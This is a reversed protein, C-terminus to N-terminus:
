ISKELSAIIEKLEQIKEQIEKKNEKIFANKKYQKLTEICYDFGRLFTKQELEEKQPLEELVLVPEDEEENIVFTTIETREPKNMPFSDTPTKQEKEKKRITNTILQEIRVRTFVIENKDVDEIAINKEKSELKLIEEYLQEQEENTLNAAEQLASYQFGPTKCFEQLQPILKLISEYRHVMSETINFYNAVKERKNGKFKERKLIDRYFSIANAMELPSIKRNAINSSLLKKDILGKEESDSVICPIEKRKLYEMAAYRRHGSIIEYRGDPKQYVEIPTTFGEEKIISALHEINNVSFIKKNNPNSDIKNLAINQLTFSM